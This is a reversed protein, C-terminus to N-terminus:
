LHLLIVHPKKGQIASIVTNLTQDRSNPGWIWLFTTNYPLSLTLPYNENYSFLKRIRHFTTLM